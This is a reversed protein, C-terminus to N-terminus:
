VLDAFSPQYREFVLFGVVLSAVACATFVGINTLEPWRNYLFIDRYIDVLHTLPNLELWPRVSAPIRDASYFIPTLFMWLYCGVTVLQAVDRYFVYAAATLWCLGLTFATQVILVGPLTLAHLSLHFDSFLIAVILIAIGALEHLVASIVLYLPIIKSPFVINRILHRHSVISPTARNLADQIAMWPLMGCFFFM